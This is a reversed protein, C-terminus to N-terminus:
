QPRPAAVATPVDASSPSGTGLGGYLQYGWCYGAGSVAVACAHFSGVSVQKFSLGGDVAVPTASSDVGAAGTLAQGWCYGAGSTTLACSRAGDSGQYGGADVTQAVLGSAVAVPIPSSTANGDGLEGDGNAGWCYAGGRTLACTHYAGAAVSNFRLGVSFATSTVTIGGSTAVLSYGTGPKDLRLDTFTAVGNQANATVTGALTAGPWPASGIDMTVEGTPVTNGFRDEITVHLAPSIPVNGEARAVPQTTFRLEAAPGPGGPGTGEQTAGCAALAAACISLALTTASRSAHRM